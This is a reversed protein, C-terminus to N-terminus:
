RRKPKRGGITSLVRERWEAYRPPLNDLTGPTEALYDLFDMVVGMSGEILNVAVPRTWSRDDSDKSARSIHCQHIM